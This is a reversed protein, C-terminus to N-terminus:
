VLGLRQCSKHSIGKFQAPFGPHSAAKPAAGPEQATSSDPFRPIMLAPFVELLMQGSVRTGLLWMWM